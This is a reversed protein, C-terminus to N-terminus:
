VKQLCIDSEVENGWVDWGPTKQRAFLEIRPLDGFLEVIKNRVIPPKVSHGLRPQMFVQRVKHNIPKMKGKIGLLCLEMGGLTYYGLRCNPMGTKRSTKVWCFAVTKYMFGWHSCVKIADPINRNTTWLFLACNNKTLEQIHFASIQECSLTPYRISAGFGSFRSNGIKGYNDNAMYWPPDAYVIQYKKMGEM